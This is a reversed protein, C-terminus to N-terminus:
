NKKQFIKDEEAYKGLKSIVFKLKSDPSVLKGSIIDEETIKAILIERADEYVKDLSYRFAGRERDYTIYLYGDDHEVADPYSVNDREDLLIKYPWTKGDDESLMATLNNRGNFNYHNILLIRGSKLRKIHFRSNPGKLGSDEGETWTKGRDYSYSVGIGYTTRVFMALTSDKLELIMHEDCIREPVNSGGLKTFTKGHDITEYVFAKRDPDTTAYIPNMKDLSIPWVTIPFHWEGTSLVTPKNMMVDNGIKRVESWVLEDADPDDCIVAYVANEPAFSWIFWLRGLPDIWLCPDFCRFNEKFTVAIPEGFHIGDDSKLLAVFNNIQERTGGSYFTIFIRGKKTVEIGPIGQWLRHFTDYKKLEEKNTILMFSRKFPCM